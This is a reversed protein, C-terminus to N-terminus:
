TALIAARCALSRGPRLPPVASAATKFVAARFPTLTRTGGGVGDRRSAGGHARDAGRAPSRRPARQAPRRVGPAGSRALCVVHNTDGGFGAGPRTVDNAVVFDLDKRELKARANALLDETEAAFGVLLPRRTAAHRKHRMGTTRRRCKVEARVRPM